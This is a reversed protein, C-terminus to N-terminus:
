KNKIRICIGINQRTTKPKMTLTFFEIQIFNYLLNLSKKQAKRFNESDCIKSFNWRKTARQGVHTVHLTFINFIRPSLIVGPAQFICLICPDPKKTCEIYLHIYKHCMCFQYVQTPAPPPPSTFNLIKPHLSLYPFRCAAKEEQRNSQLSAKLAEM